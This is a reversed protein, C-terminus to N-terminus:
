NEWDKDDPGARRNGQLFLKAYRGEKKKSYHISIAGKIIAMESMKRVTGADAGDHTNWSEHLDDLDTTIYGVVDTM